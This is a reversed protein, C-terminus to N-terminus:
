IGLEIDCFEEKKILHISINGNGSTFKVVNSVLNRFVTSFMYVDAFGM